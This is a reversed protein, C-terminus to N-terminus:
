PLGTLDFTVRRLWKERSTPETHKLGKQKVVNAVFRDIPGRAWGEGAEPVAIQEPLPVFAWHAEFQAGDSIWQDLIEIEEPSLKKLDGAPPMPDDEDHIRLHLESSELDGPVIGFYGGLDSTANEFSDVRFSSEQNAADPGHCKFCKDSLIPRVDRNFDVEARM